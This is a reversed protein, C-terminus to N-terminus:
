TLALLAAVAQFPMQGCIQLCLLAFLQILRTPASGGPDGRGEVAEGDEAAREEEQRECRMSVLFIMTSRM